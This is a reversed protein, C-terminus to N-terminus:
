RQAASSGSPARHEYPPREGAKFRVAIAVALAVDVALMIVTFLVM